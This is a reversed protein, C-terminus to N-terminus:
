VGKVLSLREALRPIAAAFAEEAHGIFTFQTDARVHDPIDRLDKENEGPLIIHRIGV